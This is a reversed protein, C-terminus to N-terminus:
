ANSGFVWRYDSAGRSFRNYATLQLEYTDRDQHKPGFEVPVREYWHLSQARGGSDMMWWNTASTLYHWVRVTFRGSQPNIANNASVPDQVSRVHILTTDELEPPVLLEDPMVNLKDGTDDVFAMMSARVTSINAATLAASSTNSDVTAANDPNRPHSASCIAVGDSGAIAFGNIDTGSSTFSNIFFLAASKERFRFLSDGLATAQRNIINFQDDDVLKRQVGMGRAFEAHTATFKYGRAFDAYQVRGTKEFDNWGNSSINGVGLLQENGRTSSEVNYIADIQSPRRGYGIYFAKSLGPVVLEAWNSAQVPM